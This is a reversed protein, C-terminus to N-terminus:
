KGQISSTRNCGSGQFDINSIGFKTKSNNATKVMSESADIGTIHQAKKSLEFALAGTGCAVDIIKLNEPIM